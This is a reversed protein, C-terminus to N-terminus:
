PVSKLRIMSPRRRLVALPVQGGPRRARDLLHRRIVRDPVAENVCGESGSNDYTIPRLVHFRHLVQELSGNAEEFPASGM